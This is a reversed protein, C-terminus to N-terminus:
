PLKSRLMRSSPPVDDEFSWLPVGIVTDGDQHDRIMNIPRLIARDPNADDAVILQVQLRSRDVFYWTGNSYQWSTERKWNDRPIRVALVEFDPQQHKWADIAREVIADRDPGTYSDSPLPNQQIILDELSKAKDALDAELQELEKTLPTAAAPDLTELLALQERAFDMQQPIGGTFFLPKQERVAQDAYTTAEGLHGRIVDPLEAARQQAAHTFQRASELFYNGSGELHKGAETEQTMLGAYKQAIRVVEKQAEPAQKLVAVAQPIDTQLVMPDRYMGGLEQLRKLDTQLDPYNAPDILQQLQQDLPRFYQDATQLKADAIGLAQTVEPVGTGDAPLQKLADRAFGSKRQANDLTAIANAVDRHNIALQDDLPQFKEWMAILAAANGEVERLSFKANKLLDEQQYNLKTGQTTDPSAPVGTLFENLQDYLAVSAAHRQKADAAGDTADPINELLKGAPDLDDKAQQLRQALLKGASGTPPTDRNATNQQVSQLNSEARRLLGNAKDLDAAADAFAPAISFACLLAFTVVSVVRLFSHSM